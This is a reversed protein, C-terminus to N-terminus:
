KSRIKSEKPPGLAKALYFYNSFGSFPRHGSNTIERQAAPAQGKNPGRTMVPGQDVLEPPPYPNVQSTPQRHQLTAM